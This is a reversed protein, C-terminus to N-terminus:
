VVEFSVDQFDEADPVIGQDTYNTEVIGCADRDSHAIVTVIRSSTEYIEVQYEDM